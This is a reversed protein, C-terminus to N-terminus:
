SGSVRWRYLQSKELEQWWSEVRQNETSKGSIFCDEVRVVTPDVLRSFAFHAEAVLPLESGRDARFFQPIYGMQAVVQVYQQVVSHSTRNSIGVYVWIINRSYADICAYIEIGFPSLKDHGDISWIWDPGPVIYEGKKQQMRMMRLRIADPNMARLMAFLSERRVILDTLLRHRGNKPPNFATFHLYVLRTVLQGQQKFYVHLHRRGYGAVRGDDLEAKLIEFLKSDQVQRDEKTMRRVLGLQKRVRTIGTLTAQFGLDELDELMEQDSDGLRFM